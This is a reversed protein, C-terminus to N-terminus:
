FQNLSNHISLEAGKGQRGGEHRQDGEDERDEGRREPEPLGRPRPGAAQM